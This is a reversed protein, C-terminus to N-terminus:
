KRRTRAHTLRVEDLIEQREKEAEKIVEELKTLQWDLPEGIMGEKIDKLANIFGSLYVTQAIPVQVKRIKKKLKRKQKHLVSSVIPAPTGTDNVTVESALKRELTELHHAGLERELAELNQAGMLLRSKYQLLHQTSCFLGWSPDFVGNKAELRTGCFGCIRGRDRVQMLIPEDRGIQRDKRDIAM